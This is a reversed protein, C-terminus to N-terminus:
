NWIPRLRTNNQVLGILNIDPKIVAPLLFYHIMLSIFLPKSRKERHIYRNVCM